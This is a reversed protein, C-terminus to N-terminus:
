KKKRDRVTIDFDDCIAHLNEPMYHSEYLDNMMLTTSMMGNQQGGNNEIVILVYGRDDWTKFRLYRSRTTMLLTLKGEIIQIELKDFNDVVLTTSTSSSAVNFVGQNSPSVNSSPRKGTLKLNGGNTGLDDDNEVSNLADFPNSNSVEKSSVAVRVAQRPNKLNKVVDSVINKACEDLVHGFVKCSSCRPPKWEYKVRITCMYFGEGTLKPMAVMITDKLDADAQLEIMTRVYSSRGWSQMCMDSTYSYLMWPTGIKTAIVSLGDKSFARMPVCPGNELMADMGDKSSFKFFFLGNSSNLMSKVLGFKSWTNRVYNDVVPYAVRKGLFFGYVINAFRESIALVSELSVVVDAGNVTPTLLTRFNVSKRSPEGIVLKCVFYAGLFEPWVNNNSSVMVRETM